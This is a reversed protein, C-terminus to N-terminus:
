SFTRRITDTEVQGQSRGNTLIVVRWHLGFFALPGQQCDGANTGYHFINSGTTDQAPRTIRASRHQM